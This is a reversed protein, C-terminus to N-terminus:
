RFFISAITVEKQTESTSQGGNEAAEFAETLESLGM